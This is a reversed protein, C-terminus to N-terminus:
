LDANDPHWEFLGTGTGVVSPVVLRLDARIHKNVSSPTTQSTVDPSAEGGRACCEDRLDPGPYRGSIRLPYSM